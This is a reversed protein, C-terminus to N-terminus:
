SVRSGLAAYVSGLELGIYGGGVVLLGKPIRKLDLASTSDLVRPSKADFLPITAPRSGTAVICHDFAVPQTGGANMQVNLTHPDTFTGRGAIYTVKRFKAVQGVGGTLKKVVGDKWARLTDVNIRPPGFEIGMITAAEAEHLVKAAHLLAKSPICGRYLCVGGPNEETDILATKLGLDAALFAAAYGGPGAGLVVVQFRENPSM